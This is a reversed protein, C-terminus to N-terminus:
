SDPDLDHSFLDRNIEIWFLINTQIRKLPYCFPNIQKYMFFDNM